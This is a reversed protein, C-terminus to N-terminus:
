QKPELLIVRSEEPLQGKTVTLTDLKDGAEVGLEKLFRNAGDLQIALGPIKYHMPIIIKPELLGVVDVAKGSTLNSRGGVPVLLIDIDNLQEAQEQSLVHDLAGLHCITLDEFEILYAANKARSAEATAVGIVFIGEIEYEGPARIVFPSGKIAQANNHEPQDCSVTVVSATLRPLKLGGESGYPDTVVALGRSRLRFCSQGYWTIEM